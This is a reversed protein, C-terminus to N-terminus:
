DYLKEWAVKGGEDPIIFGFGKVANFWKVTGTLRAMQFGGRYGEGWGRLRHVRNEGAEREGGVAGAGALVADGATVM